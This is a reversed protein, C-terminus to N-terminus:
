PAVRDCLIATSSSGMVEMVGKAGGRTVEVAWWGMNIISYIIFILILLYILIVM